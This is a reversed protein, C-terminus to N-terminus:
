RKRASPGLMRKLRRLHTELKTPDEAECQWIVLARYGKARLARIVRRDRSRNDTFKDLWFSRNRKPVTAKACRPHAHWFCGHVFVAWRRSRNAIDPSGPLDGNRTGFRLGLRRLGKCVLREASTDRRRIRAMRRSTAPDTRTSARRPAV